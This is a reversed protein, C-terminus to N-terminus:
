AAKKLWAAWVLLAFVLMAERWLFVHLMEFVGPGFWNTLAITSSLRLINVAYIGALALVLGYLKRRKDSGPFGLILATIAAMGLWASCAPVLKVTVGATEIVSPQYEVQIGQARLSDVWALVAREADPHVQTNRGVISNGMRTPALQLRAMAIEIDRRQEPSLTPAYVEVWDDYLTSEVGVAGLAWATHVGIVRQLAPLQPEVAAVAGLVLGTAIVVVIFYVIKFQLEQDRELRQLVSWAEGAKRRPAKPKM